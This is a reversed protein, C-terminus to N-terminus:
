HFAFDNEQSTTLLASHHSNANKLRNSGLNKYKSPEIKDQKYAGNIDVDKVFFSGSNGLPTAM